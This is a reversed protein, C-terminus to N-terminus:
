SNEGMEKKLRSLYREANEKTKFTKVSKYSTYGKPENTLLKGDITIAWKKNTSNDFTGYHLKM